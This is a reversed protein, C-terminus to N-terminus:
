NSRCNCDRSRISPPEVLRSWHWHLAKLPCSSSRPRLGSRAQDIYSITIVTFSDIVKLVIWAQRWCIIGGDQHRSEEQGTWDELARISCIICKLMHCERGSRLYSRARATAVVVWGNELVLVTIMRRVNGRMAPPWPWTSPITKM